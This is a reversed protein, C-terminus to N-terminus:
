QTYHACSSKWNSFKGMCNALFRFMIEEHGWRATVQETNPLQRHNVLDHRPEPPATKSKIPPTRVTCVTCCDRFEVPAREQMTTRPLIATTGTLAAVPANAWVTGSVTWNGCTCNKFLNARVGHQLSQHKPRSLASCQKATYLHM